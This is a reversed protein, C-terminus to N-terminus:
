LHNHPGAVPGMHTSPVLGMNEPLAALGRLPQVMEGAGGDLVYKQPHNQVQVM